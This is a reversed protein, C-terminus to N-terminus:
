CSKLAVGGSVKYFIDWNTFNDLTATLEDRTMGLRELGDETTIGMYTEPFVGDHVSVWELAEKRDCRGSRIDVSIQACGRGYGFKRYMAADHWATFFCDLNEFDWWNAECPMETQLGNAVAVEANRWSDWQEYAGLFHAEVGVSALDADTPFTYDEMDRKSIGNSGVFDGPRLGNLGGFEASWRHTMQKASEAGIPGGYQDQSNEGWILLPTKLAIAMRFPIAWISAHQPWSADGVLEMGYRNLKARVTQNPVVEITRVHRALNDINKRGIETLYCTQATVATVEAGLEKLRLSIYSSDKGGSSPVICRGDHRDLLAMLESHRAEWDINPRNEYNRCAQCVGDEDFPVDPRGDPMVCRKCRNM